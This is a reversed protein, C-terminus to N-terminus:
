WSGTVVISGPGIGWALQSSVPRGASKTQVSPTAFYVVAGGIVAVLGIGTVVTATTARSLAQEQLDVGEQKCVNGSCFPSADNFKSKASWGIAAGAAVGVVGLGAATLGIVRTTSGASSDRETPTPAPAAPTAVPELVPITVSVAASKAGVEVAQSWSKRGPATAVLAYRGPDVPIATGWTGKGMEVGDRKVILGALGATEPALVLTLRSLVPELAAARERAAEEREKQGETRMRGAVELYISWASATKGLHELCDAMHFLTGVGPDLKQSEQFKGLAEDYHGKSAHARGDEFLARATAKDAQSPEASRADGLCVLLGAMALVVVLKWKNSM